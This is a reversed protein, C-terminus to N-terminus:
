NFRYIFSSCYDIRHYQFKSSNGKARIEGKSNIAKLHISVGITMRASLVAQSYPWVKSDWKGSLDIRQFMSARIPFSQLNFQCDNSNQDSMTSTINGNKLTWSDFPSINCDAQGNNILNTDSALTGNPLVADQISLANQLETGKMRTNNFDAKYLNTGTFSVNVLYGSQFVAHKINSHWFDSFRLTAQALHVAVGTSFRFDM